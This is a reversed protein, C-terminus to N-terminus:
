SCGSWCTTQAHSKDCHRHFNQRNRGASRHVAWRSYVVEEPPWCPELLTWFFTRRRVPEWVAWRQGPYALANPWLGSQFDKKSSRFPTTRLPELFPRWLRLVSTSTFFFSSFIVHTYLLRDPLHTKTFWAQFYIFHLIHLITGITHSKEFSEWTIFVSRM